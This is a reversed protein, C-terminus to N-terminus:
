FAFSVSGQFTFSNPRYSVNHVREGLKGFGDLSIKQDLDFTELRQLLTHGAILNLKWRKALTCEYLLGASVQQLQLYQKGGASHLLWTGGTFSNTIGLSQTKDVKYKLSARAPLVATLSWRRDIAWEIDPVPLLYQGSYNRFYVLTVGYRLTNRPRFGIRAGATYFIDGSGIDRKFDSSVMVGGLLSLDTKRNLSYNLVFPITLTHFASGGINKENDIMLGDYRLGTKILLPHPSTFDTYIPVGIDVTPQYLTFSGGSMTVPTVQSSITVGGLRPATTVLPKQRRADKPRVTTDTSRVTTDTSRVSTDARQAYSLVPLLLGALFLRKKM